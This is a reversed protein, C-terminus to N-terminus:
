TNQYSGSKLLFKLKTEACIIAIFILLSGAIMKTTIVENAIVVSFLMGFVAETSLILATKTEDVKTQCITQGLFCITTNFVGLFLISSMTSINIDANVEGAIIQLILSLLFATIMQICTLVIPNHKKTFQSTLFIHMAFGIACILTLSDGIGITFNTELSIIGIGILAILSSLISIKDLKRKYLMCGIFPVIVVNSATLFASKSSTTFQLGFTQFSFAVFLFGGLLVGPIIDKKDIKKIQKFFIVSILLAGIFFRGTMLQFPTLGNNLGLQTYVFGSGWILSVLILGIEGSYIKIVSGGKELM